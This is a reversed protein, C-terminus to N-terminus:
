NRSFTYWNNEGPDNDNRANELTAESDYFIIAIMNESEFRWGIKEYDGDEWNAIFLETSNSYEVIDAHLNVGGFVVDWETSTISMSSFPANVASWNGAVAIDQQSSGGETLNNSPPCLGEIRSTPGTDFQIVPPVDLSTNLDLSYNWDPKTGGVLKHWDEYGQDGEEEWEVCFQYWGQPYHQFRGVPHNYPPPFVPVGSQFTIPADLDPHALEYDAVLALANHPGDNKFEFKKHLSRGTGLIFISFGTVYSSFNGTESDIQGGVSGWSSGDWRYMVLSGEEMTSQESDLNFGIKVPRALAAGGIDVAFSKSAAEIQNPLSQPIDVESVTVEVDEGLTDEDFDLSFGAPHVITGGGNGITESVSEYDEGQKADDGCGLTIAASLVLCIFLKNKTNTTM